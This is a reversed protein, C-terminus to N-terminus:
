NKSFKFEKYTEWRDDIQKLLCFSNCNFTTNLKKSEYEKWVKYFMAKKLDRFAITIHPHFGRMDDSQNFLQLNKKAHNVLENQLQFLLENVIVNIFIVRPEFCSFGNLTIEFEKDFQFSDLSAILKQEKREEWSFPMHMTIHGQSRLAGKTNYKEFISQKIDQIESLLPEPPVIAIFYKQLLKLTECKYIICVGVDSYRFFNSYYYFSNGIINTHIFIVM